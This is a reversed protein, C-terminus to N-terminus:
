PKPIEFSQLEKGKELYILTSSIQDPDSIYNKIRLPQFEDKSIYLNYVGKNFTMEFGGNSDTIATQNYGEIEISVKALPILSDKTKITPDRRFIRGKLIAYSTDGYGGYNFYGVRSRGTEATEKCSFFLIGTLATISINRLVM